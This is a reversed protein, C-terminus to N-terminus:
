YKINYYESYWNIFKSVGTEINTTPKYGFDNSLNSIDAYTEFVDGSQMPLYNTKFKKNTEKELLSIFHLLETPSNNGINYIRFDPNLDSFLIKKIGDVIDDIYTFDRKLKGKNFVNIPENSFLSKLFLMPAMDPRGWPGYVTFFRLGTINMGFLNHYATAIIENSKKTAAYLSVPNDTNDNEKFPATSSNGYVSSSSAFIFHKVSYKKSLEILNSFGLINSSIYVEPNTISYRVGAQAALNIVIDIDYNNFLKEIGLNDELTLKEFYLNNDLDSILVSKKNIDEINFGLERLRNLKLNVDYYNNLNDIGIIKNGLNLLTATLSYGIFGAIGTILINKNNM